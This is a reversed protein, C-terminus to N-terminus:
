LGAQSYSGPNRRINLKRMRSAFTSRNIGSSKAAWTSNWNHRKLLSLVYEKELQPWTLRTLSDEFLDQSDAPPGPQVPDGVTGPSGERIHLPLNALEIYDDETTVMLYRILNELERINGPWAYAVMCQMADTTVRKELVGTKMAEKELFHRVLLPIDERREKLPPLHVPLVSLRYFLDQRFANEALWSFVLQHWIYVSCALVLGFCSAIIGLRALLAKSRQRAMKLGLDFGSLNCDGAGAARWHLQIIGSWVPATLNGTAKKEM